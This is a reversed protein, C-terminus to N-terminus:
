AATKDEMLTTFPAHPLSRPRGDAAVFGPRLRATILPKGGRGAWIRPRRSGIRQLCPATGDLRSGPPIFDIAM